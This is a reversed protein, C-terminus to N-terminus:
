AEAAQRHQLMMQGHMKINGTAVGRALNEFFERPLGAERAAAAGEARITEGNVENRQLNEMTARLHEMVAASGDNPPIYPLFAPPLQPKVLTSNALEEFTQKKRM